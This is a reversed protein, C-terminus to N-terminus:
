SGRGAVSYSAVGRQIVGSWSTISPRVHLYKYILSVSQCVSQSVFLSVSLCISQGVFWHISLGVSPCVLPRVFWRASVRESVTPKNRSDVEITVFRLLLWDSRESKTSSGIVASIQRAVDLSM